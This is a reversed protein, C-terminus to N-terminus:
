ASAAPRPPSVSWSITHSLVELLAIRTAVHDTSEVRPRAGAHLQRARLITLSAIHFATLVPGRPPGAPAAWPAGSATPVIM